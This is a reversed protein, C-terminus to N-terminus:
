FCGGLFAETCQTANCTSYLQSPSPCDEGTNAVMCPPATPNMNPLVWPPSSPIQSNDQREVLIEGSLPELIKSQLLSTSCKTLSVLPLISVTIRKWSTGFSYLIDTVICSYMVISRLKGDRERVM